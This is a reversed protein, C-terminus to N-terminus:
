SADDLAATAIALLDNRLLNVGTGDPLPILSASFAYAVDIDPAYGAQSRFGPVGGGHTYVTLGEAEGVDVGLGYNSTELKPTTMEVISEPKLLTGNFMAQWIHAVEEMQAENGGGTWGASQLVAQEGQLIDLVPEDNVLLGFEDSVGPLLTLARYLEDRVYANVVPAPPFEEPTLYIESAGAPTFVRDRMEAAASNGTLLEILLGATVFGGTEYQYATGPEFLPAQRSLFDLIEEPEYARDQRGAAEIYFGIDFAYEILGNTHDLLQRVTIDDENPHEGLWDGLYTTVPEDLEILGEEVLQLIVVSTMTKTVSAIRFYDDTTVPEETLLDRVGSAVAIPEYGPILISASVGPAGNGERWADVAAQVEATVAAYRAAAIEEATAEPTATPEPVPTPEPTATAPVATPDPASTPEAAAEVGASAGETVTTPEDSGGCSALASVLLVVAAFLRFVRHRPRGDPSIRPTWAPHNSILM